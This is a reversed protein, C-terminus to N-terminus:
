PTPAGTFLFQLLALIDARVWLVGGDNFSGQGSPATAGTTGSSTALWPSTGSESSVYQGATVTLGSSWATLSALIANAKRRRRNFYLAGQQTRDYAM